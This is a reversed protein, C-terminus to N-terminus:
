NLYKTISTLPFPKGHGPYLTKAGMHIVKNWSEKLLEPDNAYIPLGPKWVFPLRNHAMCGIFADGTELLLSVSGSTHGPTYAIKGNIGYDKLPFDHDDLVMDAKVGPFGSKKMILPKLVARSFRGWTTVGRPWHFIGEELNRRDKEHIAIKAGTLEKLEKVGGVHDFDGHSLIILSIEGPRIGHKSLQETFKAAGKSWGGDFLVAGQDKVLYLTNIGSHLPIIQLSMINTELLISENQM